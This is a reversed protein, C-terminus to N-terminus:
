ASRAKLVPAALDDDRGGVLQGAMALRGTAYIYDALRLAADTVGKFGPFAHIDVVYPIGERLILDLGFLEVGFADACRIAIDRLEKTITFPEGCKERLTTASPKRLVGFLQGGICYIKRDAEDPGDPKQYRQALLPGGGLIVEEVEDADWVIRAGRGKSARSPKVVLPGEELLTALRQSSAIVFTDPVPVGAAMLRRTAAVKDKIMVAVPWPNLIPAGVAHLAGAISHALETQAKLVYLDHEARLGALSTVHDEPYIADVKVNWQALLALVESMLPSNRKTSHPTMLMGIKV